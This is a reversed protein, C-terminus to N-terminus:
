AELFALVDKYVEEKEKENLIEHRLGKYLKLQVDTIGLDKYLKALAEPGKGYAGVPDADGAIIFIPLDKRIKALNDKNFLGANGKLFERFFGKTPVFGCYPDAIYKDVNEENVSLWDFSTRVPDIKNNYGGFTIKNLTTGLENYKKAPSLLKALGYGFTFLLKANPGNTGCIVAKKINESYHQIYDQLMFSGMSHAFIYTPLGKDKLGLVFNDVDKVSHAFFDVSVIGLKDESGATLGQGYHDICYVNYGSKNLFLAFDEYRSAQEAMGTIIVLNAKAEKAEWAFGVKKGDLGEQNIKKGM